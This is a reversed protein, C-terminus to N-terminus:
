TARKKTKSKTINQISVPEQEQRNQNLFEFVEGVSPKSDPIKPDGSDFLISDYTQMGRLKMVNSKIQNLEDQVQNWDLGEEIFCKLLRIFGAIVKAFYLSSSSTKGRQPWDKPFTQEIRSFYQELCQVGRNILTDSNDLESLSSVGFLNKYGQCKNRQSTRTPAQLRKMDELRILPSLTGLITTVSIIGLKTQSTDFLGYCKGKRENLRLIVQAALSRPSTEGLLSYRIADLHSRKVTTQNTNIEIFTKASFRQTDKENVGKFQVASVMIKCDRKMRTEVESNAYSFLRHQGDIVSIAGYVVPLKLLREETDYKCKSSLVVLISNPFMFDPDHLLRERIQQMKDRVLPRQYQSSSQRTLDPLMDRRYVRAIPLLDYPSIDFTYIDTLGTDGSAIRKNPTRVLSHYAAGIDITSKRLQSIDGFAHLFPYQAYEGICESYEVLTDWEKAYIHAIREVPQIDVDFRQLETCIFFGHFENVERFLRLDEPRVGLKKWLDDTFAVNQLCQFYNRFRKHKNKVDGPGTRATIEGVFCKQKYPILYDFECNEGSSYLEPCLSKLNVNKATRICSFGMDTFVKQGFIELEQGSLQTM